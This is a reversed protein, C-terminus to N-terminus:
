DKQSNIYDEKKQELDKRIDEPVIKKIVDYLNKIGEKYEEQPFSPIAIIKGEEDDSSIYIKLHETSGGIPIKDNPLQAIKESFVKSSELAENLKNLQEESFEFNFKYVPVDKESYGLVYKITGKLERELTVTYEYHYPPPVSGAYYSYELSKWKISEDKDQSCSINFAIAVAILLFTITRM